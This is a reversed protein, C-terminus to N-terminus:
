AGRVGEVVRVVIVVLLVILLVKVATSLLATGIDILLGLLSLGLLLAIGIILWQLITKIDM